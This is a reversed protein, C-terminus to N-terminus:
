TFDEGAPGDDEGDQNAQELYRQVTTDELLSTKQPITLKAACNCLDRNM